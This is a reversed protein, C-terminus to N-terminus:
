GRSDWQDPPPVLLRLLAPPEGQIVASTLRALSISQPPEDTLGEPLTNRGVM